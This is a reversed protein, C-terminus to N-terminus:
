EESRSVLVIVPEVGVVRALFLTDWCPRVSDKIPSNREVLERIKSCLQPRTIMSRHIREKPRLYPDHIMDLPSLDRSLQHIFPLFRNARRPQANISRRILALNIIITLPDLSRAFSRKTM